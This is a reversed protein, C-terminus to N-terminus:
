REPLTVSQSPLARPPQPPLVDKTPSTLMELTAVLDKDSVVVLVRGDELDIRGVMKGHGCCCATTEVGGANLAAVIHHICRDITRVRGSLPLCVVDTYEGMKGCM